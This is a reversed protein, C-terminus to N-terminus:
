LMETGIVARLFAGEDDSKEKRSIWWVSGKRVSFENEQGCILGSVLKGLAPQHGVLLVAAPLNPWGAAGLLNASTAGPGIQEDTEYPLELPLVTQQTRMAPSVLIRTDKPLRQKLWRAMLRAQKEGRPTLRRKLDTLGRRIEEAEAHRWLILDM